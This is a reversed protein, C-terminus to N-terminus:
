GALKGSSAALLRESLAFFVPVLAEDAQRVGLFRGFSDYLMLFVVSGDFMWFDLLFTLGLTQSVSLAETTTCYRVNEGLRINEPYGREVEFKLYDTIENYCRIRSLKAGRGAASAIVAHWESNFGQPAPLGEHFAVLAEVEEEVEYKPLLELRFASQKFSEFHAGFDELSSDRTQM